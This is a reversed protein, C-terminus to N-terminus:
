RKETEEEKRRKEKESLDSIENTAFNTMARWADALILIAKM